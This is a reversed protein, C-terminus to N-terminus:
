GVTECKEMLQCVINVFNKTGKQGRTILFSPEGVTTMIEKKDPDIIRDRNFGLPNLIGPLTINLTIKMCSPPKNRGPLSISM